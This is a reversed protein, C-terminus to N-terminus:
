LLIIYVPLWNQIKQKEELIEVEIEMLSHTKILKASVFLKLPKPICLILYGLPHGQIVFYEQVQYLTLISYTNSLKEILILM